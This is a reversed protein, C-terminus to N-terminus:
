EERALPLTLVFETSRGPAPKGNLRISGGHKELIRRTIALGLGSGTGTRADSGTVFPEFITKASPPRDWPWM